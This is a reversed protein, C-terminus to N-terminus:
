LAGAGYRMFAMANSCSIIGGSGFIPIGPIAKATESAKKLAYPRLVSGCSGGYATKKEDSVAPWPIGDPSPDMLSPMTNTLTVGFAGGQLAAKAIEESYAYNPTIKVFFPINTAKKVWSCIRTVLTPSEGCARGM